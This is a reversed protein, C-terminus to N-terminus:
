VHDLTRLRVHTPRGLRSPSLRRSRHKRNSRSKINAREIVTVWEGVAGDGRFWLTLGFLRKHFVPMVLSCPRAWGRLLMLRPQLTVRLGMLESM